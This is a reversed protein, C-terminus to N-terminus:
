VCAGDIGCIRRLQSVASVYEDSLQEVAYSVAEILGAVGGGLTLTVCRQLSSDLAEFFPPLRSRLHEVADDANRDILYTHLPFPYYQTPLQSSNM